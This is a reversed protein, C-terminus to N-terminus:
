PIPGKLRLSRHLKMHNSNTMGELNGISNDTKIGNIHHVVGWKLMVAKNAEQWVFVHEAVYGSKHSSHYNPKYIYIYGRHIFRGGNWNPNNTGTQHWPSNRFKPSHGIVYYRTQHFKDWHWIKIGCGCLCDKLYNNPITEVPRYKRHELM